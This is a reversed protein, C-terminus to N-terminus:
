EALKKLTYDFNEQAESIISDLLKSNIEENIENFSLMGKDDITIIENNSLFVLGSLFDSWSLPISIHKKLEEITIQKNKISKKLEEQIIDASQKINRFNNEQNITDMILNLSPIINIKRKLEM